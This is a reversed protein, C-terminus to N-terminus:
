QCLFLNYAPGYGTIPGPPSRRGGVFSSHGWSYITGHGWLGQYITAEGDRVCDSVNSVNLGKVASGKLAECKAM